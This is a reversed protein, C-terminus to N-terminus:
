NNLMITPLNVPHNIYKGARSFQTSINWFEVPPKLVIDKINCSRKKGTVQNEIKLHHRDHESCVIMYGPRLKLGWKGLQKNKFYVRKGIKFFPPKRDM